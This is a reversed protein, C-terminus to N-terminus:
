IRSGFFFFFSPRCTYYENFRLHEDAIYELVAEFPWSLWHHIMCIFYFCSIMSAYATLIILLVVRVERTILRHRTKINGRQIPLLVGTRQTAKAREEASAVGKEPKPEKKAAEGEKKGAEGEKKGPKAKQVRRKPWLILKSKYLKLRQVNEKFSRDSRNQRRYDVAIGVSQAELPAFGAEKLEAVTFGRGLRIKRNYRQTPAHVVPRLAGDVPRPFIRAAKLSRHLRRRKKRGPQDFWTKVRRQWKKHFHANPIVKNSGHGM